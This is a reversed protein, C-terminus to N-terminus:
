DARLTVVPDIRTARMAPLYSAVVGAGGVLLAVALFVVPDYASVGFLFQAVGRALIVAAALGAALGCCVLLAARRLVLRTIAARGAGLAMRVGLERARNSVSRSLVGYVGAVTLLLALAGFVTLVRPMVEAPLEYTRILDDLRQTNYAPLRADVDLVARRIAAIGIGSSPDTRVVYTIRRSPTQAAPVYLVPPAADYPGFERTDGVVAVIEREVWSTDSALAVRRGLANAAPDNGPWHRRAFAESVVAVNPAGSRDQAGFDRGRVIAIQMTAFYGATAARFQATPERGRAPRPEGAIMYPARQGTTMPLRTIAAVARVGPLGSLRRQLESQTALLVGTDPFQTAPMAVETALVDNSQFGFNMSHLRVSAKLLLTAPTLLAVALALEGIAVSAALRNRRRGGSAGRDGDRLARLTGSAARIAPLSGFVLGAAITAGLAFLLAHTNLAITDTREWNPPAIAAFARVAWFALAVGAVGGGIALVVSETLLQRILRPRSAGLACRIALERSRAVGQALLMNAINACAILLVFGAAVLVIRMGRRLTDNFYAHDLPAVLTSVDRDQIHDRALRASVVAFESRAAGVTAGARLRGVVSLTRADRSPSAPLSLPVWLEVRRYPFGFTAPMVGAVTYPVGDLLLARGVVGTDANFRRRWLGESLVVVNSQEPREEADAFTRGAIPRVGLMSFVRPSVRAGSLREPEGSAALNFDTMAYAALDATHIADRWDIFDAPSTEIPDTRSPIQTWVAILENARQYPLPQILYADIAAFVTTIAAVGVALNIAVVGALVPRARIARLAGRVDQLLEAWWMSRREARRTRRDIAALERHSAAVDGYEALARARAEDRSLGQACLADTREEIHFALEDAIDRDISRATLRLRFLRRIGPGGAHPTM